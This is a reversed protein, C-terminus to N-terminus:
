RWAKAFASDARRASVSVDRASAQWIRVAQLGGSIARALQMADVDGLRFVMRLQLRTRSEDCCFCADYRSSVMSFDLEMLSQWPETETLPPAPGADILANFHSQGPGPLYVLAFETDDALMSYTVVGLAESRLTAKNLGNASCLGDVLAEFAVLEGDSM